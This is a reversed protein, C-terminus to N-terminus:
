LGGGQASSPQGAAPAAEIRLRPDRLLRKVATSHGAFHTDLVNVARDVACSALAVAISCAPPGMMSMSYPLTSTVEAASQGGSPVRRARPAYCASAACSAGKSLGARARDGSSAPRSGAAAAGKGSAGSAAVCRRLTKKRMPVLM